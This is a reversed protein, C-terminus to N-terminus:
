TTDRSFSISSLALRPNSESDDLRATNSRNGLLMLLVDEM